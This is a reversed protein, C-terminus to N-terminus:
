RCNSCVILLIFYFHKDSVPYLPYEIIESIHHHNSQDNEQFFILYRCVLLCQTGEKLHAQRMSSITNLALRMEDTEDSASYPFPEFIQDRM